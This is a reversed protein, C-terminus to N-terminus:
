LHYVKICQVHGPYIETQAFNSPCNVSDFVGNLEFSNADVVWIHNGYGPIAYHGSPVTGVTKLANTFTLDTENVSPYCSGSPFGTGVCYMQGTVMNMSPYNGNTSKYMEILRDIQSLEAHRAADKSRAQVGNFAVVTVVSLISLVVIVILLEVITFGRRCRKM